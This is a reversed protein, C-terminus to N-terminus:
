ICQLLVPYHTRTLSVLLSIALDGRGIRKMWRGATMSTLLAVSIIVPQLALVLSSEHLITAITIGYVLIHETYAICSYSYLCFCIHRYLLDAIESGRWKQQWIVASSCLFYDALM